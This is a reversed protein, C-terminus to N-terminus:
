DIYNELIKQMYEEVTMNGNEYCNDGYTDSINMELTNIDVREFEIEPIAKNAYNSSVISFMDNFTTYDMWKSDAVNDLAATYEDFYLGDKTLTHLILKNQQKSNNGYAWDSYPDSSTMYDGTPNWSNIGLCIECDYPIFVAQNTSAKFYIYHNNYNNRLDDPMGLFYSVASFKLWNDMDVVTELEEKTVNGAKITQIFNTILENNSTKKNTKLDYTYFEGKDEDEVGVMGYTTSYNAPGSGWTCKYLDGGRDEEDFYREIFIEDVPEAIRYIGMSESNLVCQTLANSPALVGYARYMKYAYIERLYTGDTDRNWKMEFGKLSAFTRDKREQRTAESEWVKADEGYYEENDFTQTFSFKFHLPNYVGGKDLDYFDRRSTNGKMRIGVEEIVYREGNIDITLNCKRYIPSKSNFENYEEYDEQLKELEEEEMDISVKIKSDIAFLSDYLAKDEDSIEFDESQEVPVVSIFNKDSSNEVDETGSQGEEGNCGVVGVSMAVVMALTMIKKLIKKM